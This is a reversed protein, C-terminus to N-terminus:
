WHRAIGPRSCCKIAEEEQGQAPEAEQGALLPTLSDETETWGKGVWFSKVLMGVQEEVSLYFTSIIPTPTYKNNWSGLIPAKSSGAPNTSSYLPSILVCFCLEWRGMYMLKLIKGTREFRKLCETNTQCVALQQGSDAWDTQEQSNGRCLSDLQIVHEEAPQFHSEYMFTRIEVSWLAEKENSLETDGGAHHSFRIRLLKLGKSRWFLWTVSCRMSYTKLFAMFGSGNSCRAASGRIVRYKHARIKKFPCM